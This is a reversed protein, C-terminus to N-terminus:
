LSVDPVCAIELSGKSRSTGSIHSPAPVTQLHGGPVLVIRLGPLPISNVSYDSTTIAAAVTVYSMGTSSWNNAFGCPGKSAIKVANCYGPMRQHFPGSQLDPLM